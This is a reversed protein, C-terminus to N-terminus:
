SSALLPCSDLIVFEMGNIGLKKHANAEKGKVFSRWQRM